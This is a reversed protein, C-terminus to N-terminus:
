GAASWERGLVAPNAPAATFLIVAGEGCHVWARGCTEENLFRLDIPKDNFPDPAPDFSCGARIITTAQRHSLPRAALRSRSRAGMAFVLLAASGFVLRLCKARMSSLFPSSALGFESFVAFFRKNLLVFAGAGSRFRL